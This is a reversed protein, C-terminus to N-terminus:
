EVDLGAATMGDVLEGIYRPEVALARGLYQAGEQVNDRLWDRAAETMPRVLCLTGHNEVTADTAM